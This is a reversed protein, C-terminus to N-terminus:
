SPYHLYGDRVRAAHTLVATETRATSIIHQVEVGNALLADTILRRHCRWPVAESCMIATSRSRALALLQRLGHAFEESGMHDAYDRFAKVKWWGNSTEVGAKTYRRGGLEAIWAYGLETPVAEVIAAQDWQPHTRSGPFRRVDVLQEVEHARLMQMVEEFSRDSHGLTFVTTM